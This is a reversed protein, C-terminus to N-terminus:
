RYFDQRSRQTSLDHILLADSELYELADGCLESMVPGLDFTPLWDPHVDGVKVDRVDKLRRLVVERSLKAM